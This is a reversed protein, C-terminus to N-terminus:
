VNPVTNSDILRRAPNVATYALIGLILVAPIRLGTLMGITSHTEFLAFVTMSMLYVGGASLSDAYAMRFAWLVRGILGLVVYAIFVGIYGFNLYAEAVPSAVADQPRVGLRANMVGVLDAGPLPPKEPWIVKPVLLLTSDAYTTGNLPSSGLGVMESFCMTNALYSVASGRSMLEDVADENNTPGGYAMTASAVDLTTPAESTDARMAQRMTRIFPNVVVIFVVMVPVAWGVQLRKGTLSVAMATLVGVHLVFLRSGTFLVFVTEAILM